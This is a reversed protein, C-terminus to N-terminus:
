DNNLRMFNKMDYSLDYLCGGIVGLMGIPRLAKVLSTVEGRKKAEYYTWSTVAWLGYESVKMFARKSYHRAEEVNAVLEKMYDNQM